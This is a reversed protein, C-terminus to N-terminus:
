NAKRTCVLETKGGKTRELNGDKNIFMRTGEGAEGAVKLFLAGDDCLNSGPLRKANEKPVGDAASTLDKGMIRYTFKYTRAGWASEDSKVTLTMPPQKDSAPCEFVGSLNPCPPPEAAAPVAAMAALAMGLFGM